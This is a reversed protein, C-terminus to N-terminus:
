GDHLVPRGHFPGVTAGLLTASEYIGM